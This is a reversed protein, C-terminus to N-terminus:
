FKGILRVMAADTDNGNVGLMDTNKAYSATLDVPGLAYGVQIAKVKQTGTQSSAIGGGKQDAKAYLAGITLDKNVAYALGYHKEKTELLSGSAAAPNYKKDAYGVSVQGFNYSAGFSKGEAEIVTTTVTGLDKNKFYYANLGKVGLDGVFGYEQAGKTNQNVDESVSPAANEPAYNYSFTGFPTKQLIAAGWVQGPLAGINQQFLTTNAFTAQSLDNPSFGVLVAASRDSDSRQIHDRSISLTTGSSANTIDFYTNENFISTLQDGDNEISFGAAYDLGGLSLKGKTQVNIQQEAGFGYMNDATGTNATTATANQTPATIKRINGVSLTAASTNDTAATYATSAGAGKKTEISKYNVRAEGTITTQAIASSMLLSSAIATTIMLKKM